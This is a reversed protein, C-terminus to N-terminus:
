RKTTIAPRNKSLRKIFMPNNWLDIFDKISLHTGDTFYGTYIDLKRGSDQEHIHPVSPFTDYDAIRMKKIDALLLELMGGEKHAITNIIEYKEALKSEDGKDGQPMIDFEHLIEDIISYLSTNHSIVSKLKQLREILVDVPIMKVMLQEVSITFYLRANEANIVKAMDDIM